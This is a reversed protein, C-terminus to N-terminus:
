SRWDPFAADLWEVTIRDEKESQSWDETPGYEILVKDTATDKVVSYRKGGDRYDGGATYRPQLSFHSSRDYFAAKYFVAGRKRGQEDHIYSWMSHDSPRLTWGDPATVGVFIDDVDSGINFGIRELVERFRDMGDKPLQNFKLTLMAQGAKEQGEIGGPTAAVLANHVDGVALASLAAPTMQMGSRKM